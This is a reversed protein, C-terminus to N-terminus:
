KEYLYKQNVHLLKIIIKFNNLLYIKSIKIILIVIIWMFLLEKPDEIILPTM